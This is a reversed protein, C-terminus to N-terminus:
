RTSRIGSAAAKAVCGALDRTAHGPKGAGDPVLDLTLQPDTRTM